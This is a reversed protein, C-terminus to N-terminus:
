VVNSFSCLILEKFVLNAQITNLCEAGVACYIREIETIFVLIITLVHQTPFYDSNTTLNTNLADICKTSLVYFQQMNFWATVYQLWQVKFPQDFGIADCDLAMCQRRGCTSVYTTSMAAM